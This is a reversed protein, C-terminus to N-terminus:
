RSRWASASSPGEDGTKCRDRLQSIALSVASKFGAAAPANTCALAARNDASSGPGCGAGVDADVGRDVVLLFLHCVVVGLVDPDRVAVMFMRDRSADLGTTEFDIIAFGPGAM